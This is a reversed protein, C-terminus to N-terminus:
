ADSGIHSPEFSLISRSHYLDYHAPRLWRRTANPTAYAAPQATNKTLGADSLARGIFLNHRPGKVAIKEPEITWVPIRAHNTRSGVEAFQLGSYVGSLTAALDVSKRDTDVWARVHMGLEQMQQETCAARPKGLRLLPQSIRSAMGIPYNQRTLVYFDRTDGTGEARQMTTRLSDLTDAAISPRRLDHVAEGMDRLELQTRVTSRTAVESLAEAYVYLREDGLESVPQFEIPKIDSSSFEARKM